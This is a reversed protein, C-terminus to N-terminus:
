VFLWSSPCCGVYCELKNCCLGAPIGTRQKPIAGQNKAGSVMEGPPGQLLKTVELSPEFSLTTTSSSGGSEADTEKSSNGNDTHNYVCVDVWLRLYLFYKLVLLLLSM